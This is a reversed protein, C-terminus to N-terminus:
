NLFRTYNQIYSKQSKSFTPLPGPPCVSVSRTCRCFTHTLHYTFIQLEDSTFENQDLLVHYHAPRSTGQIGSHSLLFFDNEVTHAIGNDVVADLFWGKFFNNIGLIITASPCVTTVSMMLHPVAILILWIIFNRFLRIQHSLGLLVAMHDLADVLEPYLMNERFQHHQSRLSM